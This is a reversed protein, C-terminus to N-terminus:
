TLRKILRPKVSCFAFSVRLFAATVFFKFAARSATLPRDSGSPAPVKNYLREAFILGCIPSCKPNTAFFITSFFISVWCLNSAARSYKSECVAFCPPILTTSNSFAQPTPITTVGSSISLATSAHASPFATLLSTSTCIKSKNPGFVSASKAGGGFASFFGFSFFTSVLTAFLIPCAFAILM